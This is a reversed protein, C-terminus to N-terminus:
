SSKSRRAESPEVTTLRSGNGHQKNLQQTLTLSKGDSKSDGLEDMAAGGDSKTPSPVPRAEDLDASGSSGTGHAGPSAM